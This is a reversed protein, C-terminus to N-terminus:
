NGVFGSWRIGSWRIGEFDLGGWRIGSWRIGSWRIGSWDVQNWRIGNLELGSWRIGDFVADVWRIGSFDAENVGLAALLIYSPTLGNDTSEPVGTFAVARDALVGKDGRVSRTTELLVDKVEGPKWQPHDELILAALGSVVGAAMSTGSMRFYAQNHQEVIHQSYTRALYSSPSVPSVINAGPALVEPKAFGDQTKGRSSWSALRDDNLSATGMDDFAGVTIVFPDNAPPYHVADAADGLNGAAVVVVVGHFWLLEVAADIPDVKYSQAVSSTVSLNLVRINYTARNDDVFELGAMLDGVTANGADDAIRVSLLNAEPAIGIYKGAPQTKTSYGAIVGGVHSGHGFGDETASNNPNTTVWQVRLGGAADSFDEKVDDSVGTDVLAVTVGTGTTSQWAQPAKIAQPYVTALASSDTLTGTSQVSADLSVWNVDGQRALDDVLDAPMEVDLAPIIHFEREVAGGSDRVFALLDDPTGDHQVILPVPEGPHRQAWDAVARQVPLPQAELATVGTAVFAAVFMAALVAVPRWWVRKQIRQEAM